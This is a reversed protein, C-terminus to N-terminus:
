TRFLYTHPVAGAGVQRLMGGSHWTQRRTIVSPLSSPIWNTVGIGPWFPERLNRPCLPSDGQPKNWLSSEPWMRASTKRVRMPGLQAYGVLFGGEEGTGRWHFWDRSGWLQLDAVGWCSAEMVPPGTRFMVEAILRLINKRLARSEAAAANQRYHIM